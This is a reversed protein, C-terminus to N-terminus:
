PESGFEVFLATVDDHQREGDRFSALACHIREAVKELPLDHSHAFLDVLRHRGFCKKEPNVTEIVGDTIMLLREGVALDLSDSGWQAEDLVGLVPGTPSIERTTGGPAMLWGSPHGANAWHLIRKSSDVRVLLMSVFDGLLNVALFRRNVFALLESPSTLQEAGQLLLTKIMAANMAAAVGHGTVDAICFLTERHNLPLIDFYDGAIVDAPEFLRATRIGPIELHHPLLNEQIRQAKELQSDRDRKARALLRSMNNIERALYKLESCRFGGASTGLEGQGIRQVTRVLRNLPHVVVRTLVINVVVGAVVALIAIGGLRRMVDGKVSKQLNKLSEAVFVTDGNFTYVGVVLESDQYRTRRSKSSAASKMAAVIEPSARDHALAQFTRDPSVFAIHHGPSQSERMRGCVADIYRQVDDPGGARIQVIAPLLTKAEEDLAIRKDKLREALEARYDYALFGVVAVGMVLNVFLVLQLRISWDAPRSVVPREHLRTDNRIM